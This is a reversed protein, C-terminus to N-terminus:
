QFTKSVVYKFDYHRLPKYFIDNNELDSNNSCILYQYFRNIDSKIDICNINISDEYNNYIKNYICLAMYISFRISKEDKSYFYELKNSLESEANLNDFIVLFINYKLNNYKDSSLDYNNDIYELESLLLDYDNVDQRFIKRLFNNFDQLLPLNEYVQIISSEKINRHTICRYWNDKKRYQENIFLASPTMYNIMHLLRNYLIILHDDIQEKDFIDIIKLLVIIAPKHNYLNKNNIYHEIKENIFSKYKDSTHNIFHEDNGEIFDPITSLYIYNNDYDLEYNNVIKYCLDLYINELIFYDLELESDSDM